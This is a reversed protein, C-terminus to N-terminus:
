HGYNEIQSFITIVCKSEFSLTTVYIFEIADVKYTINLLATLSSYNTGFNLIIYILATVACIGM